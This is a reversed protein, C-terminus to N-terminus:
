AWIPIPPTTACATRARRAAGAAVRERRLREYARLAEPATDERDRTSWSLRWRWAMRSRSTPVKASIPFCPTRPTASCIKFRGKSWTPLPERDYLASRFTSSCRGCCRRRHAPGLRRVRPAIRRPDGPASWSKWM